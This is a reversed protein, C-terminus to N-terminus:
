PLPILSLLRGIVADPTQGEAEAESSLIIRHRLVPLAVAKLDEPTVYDRGQFLAEVRACRYLAIAARPSAGLAIQRNGRPEHSPAFSSALSSPRTAEVLAVAYAAVKDDVKVTEALTKLATLSEVDLVVNLEAPKGANEQKVIALEEAANPYSVLIKLLFRDLEAEPLAYVGEQEIPNETALTMFPTPLPYDEGGISVQREEM